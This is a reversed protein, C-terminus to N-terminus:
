QPSAAMSGEVGQVTNQELRQNTLTNEKENCESKSGSVQVTQLYVFRSFTRNSVSLGPTCSAMTTQANMSMKSSKM